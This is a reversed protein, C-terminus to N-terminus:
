WRKWELRKITLFIASFIVSLYYIIHKTDIIGKVFDEFHNYISISSLFKGLTGGMSDGAWGIIWLLLLLGFSVVTAVIQNETLSSAFLGIALFSMGMLIFGLYATLIPGWDPKGFLRLLLPYELTIGVIIFFLILCSVYKGFVIEQLTLPSTYLLEITGLKREEAFSRMTIIPSIFLLTVSMNLFIIRMEAMQTNFVIISFFYGSILLFMAIVIYAIPSVFFSKIEKKVIAWIKKM